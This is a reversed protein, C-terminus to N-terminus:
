VHAATRDPLTALLRAGRAAVDAPDDTACVLTCVPAGRAIPTGRHPIDRVLGLPWWAPDPARLDRDAFLVLKVMACGVTPPVGFTPLSVGRAGEVHAAFVGAGFLELSATPRPNVELVWTQHGDWIADVGFAGRVGFRGAVAQCVADLRGALEDCESAPLRPPWVNGTWSFGVRHLQETVGLVTARQGDAIAVASCSLGAIRRQLIESRGLRGGAWHRVGRGGGGARPKRLWTRGGSDRPPDTPRRTEPMRAGAEVVVDALAWPDRVGPLVRPPTGLLERGAALRRVLDPRNELGAGYVLADAAAREALGVLQEHSSGTAGPAIARLDVDGFRDFATVEHGGAVALEALMRASVGVILIRV